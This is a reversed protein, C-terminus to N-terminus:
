AGLPDRGTLSYPDGTKFALTEVVRAKMNGLATRRLLKQAQVLDATGALGPDRLVFFQYIRSADVDNSVLLRFENLAPATSDKIELTWLGGALEGTFVTRTFYWGTTATVPITWVTGSPSTLTAVTTGIASVDIYVKVGTDDVVGPWPEGLQVKLGPSTTPVAYAVIGTTETLMEDVSFRDGEVWVMDSSALDLPGELMKELQEIRPGSVRRLVSLIRARRTDDDDSPRVPNKTIGEWREILETTTDPFIEDLVGDVRDAVAALVAAISGLEKGVAKDDDTSPWAPSIRKLAALIRAYSAAASM